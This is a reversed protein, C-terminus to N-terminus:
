VNLFFTLNLKLTASLCVSLDTFLTQMNVMKSKLAVFFQRVICIYSFMLCIKLFCSISSVDISFIVRGDDWDFVCIHGDKRGGLLITKAHSTQTSNDGITNTALGRKFAAWADAKFDPVYEYVLLYNCAESSGRDCFWQNIHILSINTLMYEHILIYRSISIFM